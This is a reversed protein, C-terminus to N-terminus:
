QAGMIKMYKPYLKPGEDAQFEHSVIVVKKGQAHKWFPTGETSVLSYGKVKTLVAQGHPTSLWYAWLKGVYPNKADKLLWAAWPAVVFPSIPAHAVPAGQRQEDFADNGVGLAFEGSIVRTRVDPYTPLKRPNQEKMLTDLLKATQEDGLAIAAHVFVSPERPTAIRGKFKPDLLDQYSKPADEAKVLSTNYMVLGLTGDHIRLGKGGWVLDAKAGLESVWDVPVVIGAKDLTAAISSTTWFIDVGSPVGLKAGQVLEAAKAPHLGTTMNLKVPFGFFDQFGREFVAVQDPVLSIGYITAGGERKAADFLAKAKESAQAMAVSAICTVALTAIVAASLQRRLRATMSGFLSSLSTMSSGGKSQAQNSKLVAAKRWGALRYAMVALLLLAVLQSRVLGARRWAPAQGANPLKRWGALRHVAGAPPPLAVLRNRAVGARLRADEWMRGALHAVPVVRGCVAGAGRMANEWMWGAQQLLPGLRDRVLGARSRVPARGMDAAGGWGALRYAVAVMALLVVIMYLGIAAASNFRGGTQLDFILTSVVPSNTANMMLPLTLERAALMGVMTGSYLTAPAIIPLFVRWFARARSVGSAYAAEDLEAHIQMAPGNITRTCFALMRTGMAIVVLWITGYLPLWTYIWMGVLQFAVAAVMSPVALSLFVIADAWRALPSRSRTVVWSISVSWALALLVSGAMVTLTNWLPERIYSFAFRFGDLNAAAFAAASPPRLFPNTAVWVLTVVPIVFALVAWAGVFATALWRGPGLEVLMQARGKGTVVAYRSAQRLFRVYFGIAIVAVVFLIMGAAAAFGYDPFGFTPHLANYIWISLVEIGAPMGILGVFDFVEISVIFFFLTAALIGPALLPVVIRMFTRARSIGSAWAAEELTSGLNQFSPLLMFVCAPTLTLGQLFCIWRLSYIDFYPTGGTAPEGLATNVMGSTPNFLWVYAMATVFGPVAIKAILIMMLLRKGVFDTRALLWCIPFAFLLMFAVSGLGLMLTNLLVPLLRERTALNQYSQLTLEGISAGDSFSGVVSGLLSLLAFLLGTLALGHVGYIGRASASQASM